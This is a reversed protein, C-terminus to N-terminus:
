HRDSRAAEETQASVTAVLSKQGTTTRTNEEGADEPGTRDELERGEDELAAIM